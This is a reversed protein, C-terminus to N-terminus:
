IRPDSGAHPAHISINASDCASRAATLDSGAHPAHISISKVFPFFPVRDLREGCPSRPNFDPPRGHLVQDWQREGCPSRPNFDAEILDNRILRADSGVHPAHISITRSRESGIFALTAGWMPLTSQFKIEQKMIEDTRQREGCPSRPNFNAAKWRTEAGATTAGWMPLTSQFTPCAFFRLTWRGDSGVHPAHISIHALAAYRNRYAPREGCPSRPNFYRPSRAPRSFGRTAGRMPLTSQFSLAVPMYRKSTVDSGAHPAHISICSSFPFRMLM